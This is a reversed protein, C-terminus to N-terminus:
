IKATNKLSYERQKKLLYKLNQEFERRGDEELKYKKPELLDLELERKFLSIRRDVYEKKYKNPVLEIVERESDIIRDKTKIGKEMFEIYEELIFFQRLYDPVSECVGM